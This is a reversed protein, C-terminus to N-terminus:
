EGEKKTKSYIYNMKSNDCNKPPQFICTIAWHLKLKSFINAGDRSGLGVSGNQSLIRKIYWPRNVIMAFCNVTRNCADSSGYLVVSSISNDHFLQPTMQVLAFTIKLPSSFTHLVTKRKVNLATIKDIENVPIREFQMANHHNDSTANGLNLVLM